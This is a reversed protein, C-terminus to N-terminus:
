KVTIGAIGSVPPILEGPDLLTKGDGRKVAASLCPQGLIQPLHVAGRIQAVDYSAQHIPGLLQKVPFYKDISGQQQRKYM